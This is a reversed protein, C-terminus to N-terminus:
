YNLVRRIDSKRRCGSKGMVEAETNAIRRLTDFASRGDIGNTIEEFWGSMFFREVEAMTRKHKIVEKEFKNKIAEETVFDKEYKCFRIIRERENEKDNELKWLALVAMKYDISAQTVIGECLRFIAKATEDISNCDGVICGRYDYNKM